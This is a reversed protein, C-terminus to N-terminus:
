ITCNAFATLGDAWTVVYASTFSKPCCAQLDFSWKFDSQHFRYGYTDISEKMDDKANNVLAIEQDSVWPWGNRAKHTLSDTEEFRLDPRIIISDAHMFKEKFISTRYWSSLKRKSPILPSLLEAPRVSNTWRSHWFHKTHLFIFLSHISGKDSFLVWICM